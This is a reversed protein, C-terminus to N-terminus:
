ATVTDTADDDDDLFEVTNGRLREVAEIARRNARKWFAAKEEDSLSDYLVVGDERVIKSIVKLPEQKAM